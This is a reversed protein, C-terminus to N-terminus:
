AVADEGSSPTGSQVLQPETEDSVAGLGAAAVEGRDDALAERGAQRGDLNTFLVEPGGVEGEHAPAEARQREVAPREQDHVVPDIDRQGDTGVGDLAGRRRERDFVDAGDGVLPEPDAHGDMRELLRDLGLQLAGVPHDETGDVVRRGLTGVARRLPDGPELADRGRHAEGHDRDATDVRFPNALHLL